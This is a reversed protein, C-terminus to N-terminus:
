IIGQQVAYVAAAARNPANLKTLIRTVHMEVTKETVFLTAGIERNTQGGILLRLVQLERATLGAPSSSTASASTSAALRTALADARALTPAAGLPTCLTRVEELLTRATPICGTAVQFEADLLLTCAYEFPAQCADTLTLSKDLHTRADAHQSAALALEGLLRHASLLALPQRPDSAHALARAAHQRARESDGAAHHYREWLMEGEAQGLVAGSWALWSDHRELWTRTAAVDGVDLALAAALRFLAVTDLFRAAGPARDDGAPLWERILEWAFTVEGQHRALEALLRTALQRRVPMASAARVATALARADAWAGEVVLLPLLPLRPPDDGDLAGRAQHWAEEAEAALIRRDSVRDAQYPLAVWELHYLLTQGVAVARVNQTARAMACAQASAAVAAEPRGLAAHTLLHAMGTELPATSAGTSSPAEAALVREATAQAEAYRGAMALWLAHSARRRPTALPAGALAFRQATVRDVVPLADLHDAAAALDALGRHYDDMRCRLIGRLHLAFGALLPDDAVAACQSARDLDSIGERPDAFRRLWAIRVLLWGRATSDLIADTALPLAASFRAAATLAAHAREAREGAAVFWAVARADDARQFHFAVADPDPNVRAALAEAVQRHLSRRRPPAVGEVLADRILAHTFRVDHGSSELLHADISRETVLSLMEEDVGAVDAWVSFPVDQGIVAAIALLRQSEADLRLVRGDIVQRLLPPLQADAL